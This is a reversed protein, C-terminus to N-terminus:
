VRPEIIDAVRRIMAILDAEPVIVGEMRGAVFRMQLAAEQANSPRARTVAEEAKVAARCARGEAAEARKLRKADGSQEAHELENCAARLALDLRQAEDILHIINTTETAMAFFVRERQPSAPGLAGVAGLGATILWCRQRIEQVHRCEVGEARLVGGV